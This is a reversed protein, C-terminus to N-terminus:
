VSLSNRVEEGGCMRVYVSLSIWLWCSLKTRHHLFHYAWRWTETTSPFSLFHSLSLSLSFLLLFHSWCLWCFTLSLPILCLFSLSLILFHWLSCMVNPSASRLIFSFVILLHDENPSWCTIVSYGNVLFYFELGAIQFLFLSVNPTYHFVQLGPGLQRHTLLFIHIIM